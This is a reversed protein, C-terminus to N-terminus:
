KNKDKFLVSVGVKGSVEIFDTGRLKVVGNTPQLKLIFGFRVPPNQFITLEQKSLAFNIQSEMSQTVFGTVPDVPAMALQIKKVFEKQPNFQVTTTDYIDQHLPNASFYIEVSGGIPSHNVALATFSAAQIEDGVADRVDTDIDKDFLTDPDFKFPKTEVINIAFPTSFKFTARIEDGVQVNANGQYIVSGFGRIDTPLINLLGVVDPGDFLLTDNGGISIFQNQIDLQSSDTIVGADDKHYATLHLNLLLSDIRIQNELMIQLQAEDFEIGGSFGEYDVLDNAEFSDISLSDRALVGEFTNLQFDSTTLAVEFSDSVKIHVFGPSERTDVQIQFELSDLIEGPHQLSQIQYNQLNQSITTEQHPLLWGTSAQYSNGAPDQLDSVTFQLKLDVPLPNRLKLQFTGEGIRAKIIKDEQDLAFKVSSELNQAPLKGIFEEVQLNYLSIDVEFGATNILQQTVTITTDHAIPLQYQLQLPTYIFDQGNGIPASATAQGGPPINQTINLDTILVGLSDYVLLEVGNPNSSNPGLTFPLNNYLTLEITGEKIKVARLDASAVERPPGSLTIAPVFITKGLSDELFPLLTKIEIRGTSMAELSDVKLSDLQVSASSDVGSVTLDESTIEQPDIEDEINIAPVDNVIVITSDNVIEDQFVMREPALPIDFSSVWRPLVPEDISCQMFISVLFLTIITQTKIKM